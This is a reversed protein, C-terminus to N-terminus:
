KVWEFQVADAVVNGNASNTLEVYGSEGSGIGHRLAGAAAGVLDHSSRPCRVQNKLPLVRARESDDYPL